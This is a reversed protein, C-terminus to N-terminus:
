ALRELARLKASRARPNARQEAPDAQMPRRTLSRFALRPNPRPQPWEPRDLTEATTERSFNKVLRDELSHFTIVALRGGARLRPIAAELGATVAGLEDNVAMRLAQFVRTAPHRPGHRPIVRAVAEALQLTRTFPERARAQVIAAAVRAAAPEEGFERLIRTLEEQSAGNVLGAADEPASQDMRMDLPGDKQFSFGREARDLQASSVGLDLLLGDVQEIGLSDLVAGLDRYNAQVLTLAEAAGFRQRCFDLAAADRDLAIVRAGARLLLATHGGGGATGDIIVRGPGPALAWLAEAALVPVHYAQEGGSSAASSGANM